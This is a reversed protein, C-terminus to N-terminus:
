FLSKLAITLIIFISFLFFVSGTLSEEVARDSLEGSGGAGDGIVGEIVGRGSWELFVEAISSM